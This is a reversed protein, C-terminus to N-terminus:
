KIIFSYILDIILIIALIISIYNLKKNSLKNIFKEILPQLLYLFVVGGIGFRVSPNLAIRGEFNIKYEDYEWPWDGSFYECIYSTILELTTAVFMCGLFVLPLLLWKEKGKKNKIIPYITVLFLLVGFGYVPLYPGFLVGRNTFGTQYILVELVEEYIWGIFAYIMFILFYKQITKM